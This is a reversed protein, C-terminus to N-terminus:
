EVCNQPSNCDPGMGLQLNASLAPDLQCRHVISSVQGLLVQIFGMDTTTNACRITAIGADILPTRLDLYPEAPHAEAVGGTLAAVFIFFTAAIQGPLTKLPSGFPADEEPLMVQVILLCLLAVVDMAVLVKGLMCKVFAPGQRHLGYVYVANSVSLSTQPVLTQWFPWPMGGVYLVGCIATYMITSAICAYACSKPQKCIQLWSHAAEPSMGM